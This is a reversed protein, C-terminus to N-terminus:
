GHDDKWMLGTTRTRERRAIAESGLESPDPREPTEDIASPRLVQRLARSIPYGVVALGVATTLGRLLDVGWSTERGFEFLAVLNVDFPLVPIFAPRADLDTPWGILNLLLGAVLGFLVGGFPAALCSLRPGLPRLLGGFVGALGWVLMQSGLPPAIQELMFQSVLCSAAGVLFGMPAGAGLGVAFPLVYNVEAGLALNFSDRLLVNAAVFAAAVGLPWSDRDADHWTAVVLLGLLAVALGAMYPGEREVSEPSPMAWPWVLPAVLYLLGVGVCLGVAVWSAVGPRYGGVTPASM